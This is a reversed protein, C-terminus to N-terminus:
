PKWFARQAYHDLVIQPRTRNEPWVGSLVEHQFRDRTLGAHKSLINHIVNQRSPPDFTLSCCSDGPVTRLPPVLLIWELHLGLRNPEQAPVALFYIFLYTARTRIMQSRFCKHLMWATSALASPPHALENLALLRLAPTQEHLCVLLHGSSFLENPCWCLAVSSKIIMEWEAM